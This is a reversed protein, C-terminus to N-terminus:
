ARWPGTIDFLAMAQGFTRINVRKLTRGPLEPFYDYVDAMSLYDSANHLPSWLGPAVGRWVTAGETILVPCAHIAYDALNPYTFGAAHGLNSQSRSAYRGSTVSGGVQTYSRALDSGTVAGDVQHLNNDAYSTQDSCCLWCHYADSSQFPIIDGFVLSDENSTHTYVLLYFLRSDGILFWDRATSNASQSKPAYRNASPFAGTGTDVDSMAEYGKIGAYNTTTDDVRLYMRTSALDLSRYAAKNTASFAKERGAPARKATITGTATQNSIGSTIFTFTTANPITQIRFRGNIAAPASAGEILIVPGTDGVMALNHGTSITGTAVNDVIVLSDLTISGFGNVLAADLVAILKGVEGSLAPAGSMTSDLYVVSTDTTM